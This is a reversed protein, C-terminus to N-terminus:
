FERLHFTKCKESFIWLSKVKQMTISDKKHPCDSCLQNLNQSWACWQALHWCIQFAQLEHVYFLVWLYCMLFALKTRLLDPLLKLTVRLWNWESFLIMGFNKAVSFHKVNWLSIQMIKTIEWKVWLWYWYRKQSTCGETQQPFSVKKDQKLNQFLIESKEPHPVRPGPQETGILIFKLPCVWWRPLM